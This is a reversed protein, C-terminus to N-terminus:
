DQKDGVQIGHTNVKLALGPNREGIAALYLLLMRDCLSTWCDPMSVQVFNCGIAVIRRSVRQKSAHQVWLQTSQM